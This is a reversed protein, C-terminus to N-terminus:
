RFHRQDTGELASLPLRQQAKCSIVHRNQQIPFCLSNVRLVAPNGAEKVRNITALVEPRHNYVFGIASPADDKAYVAKLYNVNERIMWAGEKDNEVRPERKAGRRAEVSCSRYHLLENKDENSLTCKDKFWDLITCAVDPTPANVAQHMVSFGAGNEFSLLEVYEDRSIQGQKYLHEIAGLLKEIAYCEKLLYGEEKNRHLSRTILHHLLSETTGSIGFLLQKYSELEIMGEEFASEFCELANIFLSVDRNYFALRNLLRSSCLIQFTFPTLRSVDLGALKILYHLDNLRKYSAKDASYQAFKQVLSKLDDDGLGELSMLASTGDVAQHNLLFLLPNLDTQKDKTLADCRAVLSTILFNVRLKTADNYFRMLYQLRTEGNETSTELLKQLTFRNIFSKLVTVDDKTASEVESDNALWESVYLCFADIKPDFSSM